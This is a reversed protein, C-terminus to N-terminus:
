FLNALTLQEGAAMLSLRQLLQASASAYEAQDQCDILALVQDFGTQVADTDTHRLTVHLWLDRQDWTTKAEKTLDQAEAWDGAEVRQEAERLTDSLRQTFDELEAANWLALALLLAMGGVAGWLRRM